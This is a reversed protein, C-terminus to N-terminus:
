VLRRLTEEVSGAATAIAVLDATSTALLRRDADSLQHHAQLQAQVYILQMARAATTRDAQQALSLVLPNLWNLCLAPAGPGAIYLAVTDRNPVQRVMVECGLVRAAEDALRTARAREEAAPLLLRGIETALRLPALVLGPRLRPLIGLLEADFGNGGNVLLPVDRPISKIQHFEGTTVAYNVLALGTLKDLTKRGATTEVTLYPAFVRAAEDDDLVLQKLSREHIEMFVKFRNPQTTAMNALWNRVAMGLQARTHALSADEKLGERDVTTTLGDSNVVARVFCAWDPMLNTIKRGVLLRGSYVVSERAATFSAPRTRVFARGRTRTGPVELAIADFPAFGFERECWEILEGYDPEDDLFVPRSNVRDDPGTEPEEVGYTVCDVPVTLYEGYERALRSVVAQDLWAGGDLRPSLYVQTGVPGPRGLSRVYFTGDISGLWEAGPGGGAPHTVVRIRDSVLFCALLGMGTQGGRDSRALGLIDLNSTNGITALLGAAQDAAMGIGQDTFIFQGFSLSVGTISIGWAPDPEQGQEAAWQRRAAIADAGNQLLERLFVGPTSYAHRLVRDVFGRVDVEFSGTGDM